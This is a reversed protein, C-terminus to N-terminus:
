FRPLFLYNSIECSTVYIPNYKEIYSNYECSEMFKSKHVGQVLGGLGSLLIFCICVFSIFGRM